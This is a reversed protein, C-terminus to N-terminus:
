AEDTFVELLLKLESSNELNRAERLLVRSKRGVGIGWSIRSWIRLSERVAALQDLVRGKLTATAVPAVRSRILESNKDRQAARERIKRLPKLFLSRMM